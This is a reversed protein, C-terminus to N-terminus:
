LAIYQHHFGYVKCLNHFEVFWEGGNDIFILKPVGYGCIIEKEWFKTTTAIMHDLMTKFECRKFYHEVDVHIYKNGKNIKPFPRAIDLAMKYFLDCVM